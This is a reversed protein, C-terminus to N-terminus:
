KSKYSYYLLIFVKTVLENNHDWFFTSALLTFVREQMRFYFKTWQIEKIDLIKITNDPWLTLTFALNQM